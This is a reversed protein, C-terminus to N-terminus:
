NCDNTDNQKYYFIVGQKLENNKPKRIINDDIIAHSIANYYIYHGSNPSEGKHIIMGQLRYIKDSISIKDEATIDVLNKTIVTNNVEYRKVCLILKKSFQYNIIYCNTFKKCKPCCIKDNFLNQLGELITNCANLIIVMGEDQFTNNEPHLLSCEYGYTIRYKLNETISELLGCNEFLEIKELMIQIFESADAQKNQEFITCEKFFINLFQHIYISNNTYSKQIYLYNTIKLLQCIFCYQPLSECIYFHALINKSIITSLLQLGSSIFCTNGENVIGTHNSNKIIDEDEYEIDLKPSDQKGNITTYIVNKSIIDNDNNVIQRPIVNYVYSDCTYCYIENTQLSVTQFHQHKVAHDLMHGHGICDYQNRGCGVFDCYVCHWLNTQIECSCCQKLMHIRISKQNIHPCKIFDFSKNTKLILENIIGDKIESDTINSDLFINVFYKKLQDTNELVISLNKLNNSKNLSIQEIKFVIQCNYKNVHFNFHEECTIINCTCFVLNTNTFTKFCYSCEAALNDFNISM